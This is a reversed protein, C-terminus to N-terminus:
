RAQQSGFRSQGAALRALLLATGEGARGFSM